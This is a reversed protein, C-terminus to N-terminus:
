TLPQLEALPKAVEAAADGRRGAVYAEFIEDLNLDNAQYAIGERGLLTMASEAREVVIAV